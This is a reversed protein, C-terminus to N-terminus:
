DLVEVLFRTQYRRVQDKTGSSYNNSKSFFTLVDGQSVSAVCVNIAQCQQYQYNSGQAIYSTDGAFNNGNLKVVVSFRTAPINQYISLLATIKVHNIGTGITLTGNTQDLILVDSANTERSKMPLLQVDTNDININADLSFYSYKQTYTPISIDGSGLLSTSNITKINTGSVLADQKANWTTKDSSTVFKNTTTTDDVLDASLKHASDIKDQKTSIDPLDGQTAMKNTSENYNGNITKINAVGGSTISTGDVQVDTESGGGGINLKTRWQQVNEATLNNANLNANGNM